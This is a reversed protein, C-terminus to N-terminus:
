FSCFNEKTIINFISKSIDNILDRFIDISGFQKNTATFYELEKKKYYRNVKHVQKFQTRSLPLYKCLEQKKCEKLCAILNHGFDRSRLNKETLGKFILFSKFYLELSHGFLYIVPASVQFSPNGLIKEAALFYSNALAWYCQANSMSPPNISFNEM